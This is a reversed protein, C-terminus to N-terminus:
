TGFFFFNPEPRRKQVLLGMTIQTVKVLYSCILQDKGKSEQKNIPLLPLVYPKVRLVQPFCTIFHVFYGAVVEM